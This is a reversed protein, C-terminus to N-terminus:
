RRATLGSCTGHVAGDEQCRAAKKGGSDRRAEIALARSISNTCGTGLEGSRVVCCLWRVQVPAIGDIENVIGAEPRVTGTDTEAAYTSGSDAAIGQPM